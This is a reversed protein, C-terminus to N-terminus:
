LCFSYHHSRCYLATIKLMGQQELGAMSARLHANERTLSDNTTLLQRTNARLKDESDKSARLQKVLDECRATQVELASKAAREAALCRDIVDLHDDIAARYQL